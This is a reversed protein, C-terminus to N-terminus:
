KKKWTNQGHTNQYRPINSFMRKQTHMELKTIRNNKHKRMEDFSSIDSAKAVTNQKQTSQSIHHSINYQVDESVRNVSTTYM